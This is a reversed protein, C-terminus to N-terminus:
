KLIKAIARTLEARLREQLTDDVEQAEKLIAEQLLPFAMKLLLGLQGDQRNVWEEARDVLAWALSWTPKRERIKRDLEAVLMLAYREAERQLIENIAKRKASPITFIRRFFERLDIKM